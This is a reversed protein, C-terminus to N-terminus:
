SRGRRMAADGVLCFAAAAALWLAAPVPRSPGPGAPPWPPLPGDLLPVGAAAAIRAPVGPDPAPPPPPGPDFLGLPTGPDDRGGSRVVLTRFGAPGPPLLAAFRRAGDREVPVAAPSDGRPDLMEVRPTPAPGVGAARVEFRVRTGELGPVVALVSAPPAAAASALARVLRAMAPAFGPDEAMDAPDFALVATRGLGHRGLVVAPGRGEAFRLALTTALRAEPAAEPPVAPPWPGLGELAACPDASELAVRSLPKRPETPLAKAEPPRESPPPRQDPAPMGKKVADRGAEVFRRTDLTVIQPLDEPDLAPFTRGRGWQSLNGMQRADFDQGIGVTSLTAGAAVLDEVAKRLGFPSTQGDSLVVLHRVPTTEAALARHAERLAPLLDTFGGARLGRLALAIADSDGAPGPPVVWRPEDTFALLGFRDVPALTEAAALAARRAMELKVGWMSGSSDVLLLLTVVAGPRPGEDVRIEPGRGSPPPKEETPPPPLPEPAKPRPPPPLFVPLAREIATGRFRGLGRGDEPAGTALLGTGHRVAAELAPSGSAGAGLVVVAHRPLVQARDKDESGQVLDEPACRSVPIGMSELARFLPSPASEEVVLVAPPGPVAIVEAVAGRDRGEGDTARATLLHSGAALVIEQAKGGSLSRPPIARGDVGFEITAKPDEAAGPALVPLPAFPVGASLVPPVRIGLLWPIPPPAPAPVPSEAALPQIFVPIGTAAAARIAEAAAVPDPEGPLVQVLLRADSGPPRAALAAAVAQM